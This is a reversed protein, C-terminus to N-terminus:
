KGANGLDAMPCDCEPCKFAAGRYEAYLGDLTVGLEIERQKLRPKNHLLVSLERYLFGRDRVALWDEISPQKFAKRCDFCAYHIKYPGRIAYRCM